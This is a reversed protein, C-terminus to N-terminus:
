RSLAGKKGHLQVVSGEPRHSRLEKAYEYGKKLASMNPVLVREHLKQPILKRVADEISQAGVVRTWEVYVGLAVLSAVQSAGIESALDNAPVPLVVVDDRTVCTPDILSSNYVVIAGPTLSAEFRELSAQNMFIASCPNDILPSGIEESSIIVNCNANGGRMEVGYSPMFTVHYGEEMGAYALLNGLFLVGQGGFGAILADYYM